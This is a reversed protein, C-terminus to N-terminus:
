EVESARVERLSMLASMSAVRLVVVNYHKPSLKHSIM